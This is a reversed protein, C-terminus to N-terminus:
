CTQRFMLTPFQRVPFRSVTESALTKQGMLTQQYSNFHCKPPQLKLSFQSIWYKKTIMDQLLVYIQRSNLVLNNKGATRALSIFSIALCIMRGCCVSYNHVVPRVWELFVKLTCNNFARCLLKRQIKGMLDIYNQWILKCILSAPM